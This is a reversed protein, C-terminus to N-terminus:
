GRMTHTTVAGCIAKFGHATEIVVPAQAPTPSNQRWTESKHIGRKNAMSTLSPVTRGLDRALDATRETPCRRALTELDEASWSM